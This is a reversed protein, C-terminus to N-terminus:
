DSDVGSEDDDKETPAIELELKESEEILEEFKTTIPSTRLWNQTCILTEVTKPTLSSMYNNLVRGGTSFASESAVTSVPMALVDRTIQSLIPYKNFNVKWWNLIDFTNQDRSKELGDMLYLDM